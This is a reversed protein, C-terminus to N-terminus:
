ADHRAKREYRGHHKQYPGQEMTTRYANGRLNGAFIHTKEVLEDLFRPDSVDKQRRTESGDHGFVVVQLSHRHKRCTLLQAVETRTRWVIHQYIKVATSLHAGDDRLLNM